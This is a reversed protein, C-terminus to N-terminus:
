QKEVDVQRPLDKGYFPSDEIDTLVGCEPCRFTVFYEPYDDGYSFRISQFLDDSEVLLYAGCGGEKNGYGTCFYEKAWGTQKRGKKLVKM